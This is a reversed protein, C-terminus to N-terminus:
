RATNVSSEPHSFNIANEKKEKDRRANRRKKEKRRRQRGRETRNSVLFGTSSMGIRDEIM